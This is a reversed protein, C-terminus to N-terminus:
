TTAAMIARRLWEARSCGAAQALETLRAWHDAGM